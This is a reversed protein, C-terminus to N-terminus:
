VVSKRDILEAPVAHLALETVRIMPPLAFIMTAVLAGVPSIGFLVIIPIFYSWIPLTQMIDSFVRLVASVRRSRFAWVGLVIGLTASIPVSISVSALTEM